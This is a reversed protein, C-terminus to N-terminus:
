IRTIPYQNFNKDLNNKNVKYNVIKRALVSHKFNKLATHKYHKFKQYM